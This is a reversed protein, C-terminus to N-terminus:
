CFDFTFNLLIVIIINKRLVKILTVTKHIVELLKLTAWDKKFLSLALINPFDTFHLIRGFVINQICGLRLM